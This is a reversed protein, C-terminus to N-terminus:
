CVTGTRSFSSDGQLLTVQAEARARGVDAQGAEESKVRLQTKAESVEQDAKVRIMEMEEQLSSLAQEHPAVGNDLPGNSTAQGPWRLGEGKALLKSFFDRERTTENIKKQADLLQRHLKEITETAQDLTAGTDIDELDANARDGEKIDLKSMLTRTLRLLKQNQEQLSRISQFEVLHESIIDDETVTRTGNIQVKALNPDEMIAIQRLLGQVQRSLDDATAQIGSVDDSHHSAAAHLSRVEAEKADRASMTSALETAM